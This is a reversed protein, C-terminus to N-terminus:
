DVDDDVQKNKNIFSISKDDHHHDDHKDDDDDDVDVVVVGADVGGNGDEEEEDDDSNTGTALCQYRTEIHFEFLKATNYNITTQYRPYHIKETKAIVQLLYQYYESVDQQRGSSFEHNGQSIVHKFMYPAITYKELMLDDSSNSNNNGGDENLSIMVKRNNDGDDKGDNFDYVDGDEKGDYKSTNYGGGSKDYIDDDGDVAINSDGRNRKTSAIYRLSYLGVALKSLQVPIDSTADPPSSGIIAEHCNIYIDRV